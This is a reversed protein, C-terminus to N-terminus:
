PMLLPEEIPFYKCTARILSGATLKEVGYVETSVDFREKVRLLALDFDGDGSALVVTSVQEALEVLDLTIGVDWDGKASDRICMESGM